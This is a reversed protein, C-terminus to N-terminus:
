LRCVRCKGFEAQEFLDLQDDAGRPIRGKKFEQALEKMSAPWDDRRPNRFTHGYRDEIETGKKYLDPYTQWLRRWQALTQDFCFACDTRHPITINKSHLYDWVDAETWGWRRLPFDTVM